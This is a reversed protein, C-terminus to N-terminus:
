HRLFFNLLMSFWFQKQNQFKQLGEAGGQEKGSDGGEDLTVGGKGRACSHLANEIRGMEAETVVESV